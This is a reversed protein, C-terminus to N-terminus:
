QGDHCRPLKSPTGFATVGDKSCVTRDKIIDWRLLRVPVNTTDSSTSEKAPPVIQESRLLVLGYNDDGLVEGVLIRGDILTVEETPLLAGTAQFVTFVPTILLVLVLVVFSGDFTHARVSPAVKGSKSTENVSSAIINTQRRMRASDKEDHPDNEIARGTRSNFWEQLWLGGWLVVSFCFILVFLFRTHLIKEAILWCFVLISAVGFKRWGPVLYLLGVAAAALSVFCIYTVFLIAMPIYVDTGLFRVLYSLVSLDQGSVFFFKLSVTFVFSLSGLVGISGKHDKSFDLLWWLKPFRDRPITGAAFNFANPVPSSEQPNPANM